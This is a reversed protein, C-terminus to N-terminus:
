VKGGKIISMFTGLGYSIHLMPYFIFNFLFSIFNKEFSFFLDIIIYIFLIFILIVKFLYINLITFLILMFIYILFFLPIFHRLGIGNKNIKLTIYNWFGNDFNKKLFCKLNKPVIYFNEIPLLYIDVNNERFRYNLEIDQNRILREDFFGYKDFLERKYVGYAITDVKQLKNSYRHKSGGVGFISSYVKAFSKSLIGESAYAKAIGGCIEAKENNELFNMCVEIYNEDFITHAGAIMVFDSKSNKIGINLGFPTYIKENQFIKINKHKDKFDVIKEYTGDDSMGDVVIIEDPVRKQNFFSNISNEINDIENRCVIVVSISFKDQFKM